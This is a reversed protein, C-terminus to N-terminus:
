MPDTGDEMVTGNGYWYFGTKGNFFLTPRIHVGIWFLTPRRLEALYGCLIIILSFVIFYSNIIFHIRKLFMM